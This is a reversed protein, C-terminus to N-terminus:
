GFTPPFEVESRWFERVKRYREGRQYEAEWSSTEKTERVKLKRVEAFSNTETPIEREEGHGCLQKM